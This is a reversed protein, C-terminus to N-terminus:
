RLDTLLNARERDVLLEARLRGRIRDYLRAALVDLDQEPAPQTVAAPQEAQTAVAGPVAAGPV